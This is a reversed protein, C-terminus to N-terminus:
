KKNIQKKYEQILDYERDKVKKYAKNSVKKLEGHLADNSFDYGRVDIATIEMKDRIEPSLNQYDEEYMRLKIFDKASAGM